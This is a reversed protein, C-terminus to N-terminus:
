HARRALLVQDSSHSRGHAQWPQRLERRARRIRIAALRGLGKDGVQKRGLPTVKILPKNSHGLVLWGNQIDEIDMGVGDDSVRVVGGMDETKHLYVRCNVADADYSNRALELIGQDPHPVLEEGLRRIIDPAFRFRATTM